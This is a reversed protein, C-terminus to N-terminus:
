SLDENIAMLFEKVGDRVDLVIRWENTSIGTRPPTEDGIVLYDKM